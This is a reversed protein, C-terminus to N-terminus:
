ISATGDLAVVLVLDLQRAIDEPLDRPFDLTGFPFRPDDSTRESYLIWAGAPSDLLHVAHRSPLGYRWRPGDYLDDFLVLAKPEPREM